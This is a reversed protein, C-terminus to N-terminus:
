GTFSMTLLAAAWFAASPGGLTALSMWVARRERERHSGIMTEITMATLGLACALLVWSYWPVSMRGEHNFVIFLSCLAGVFAGYIFSWM